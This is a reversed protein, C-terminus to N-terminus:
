ERGTHLMAGFEGGPKLGEIIRVTATWAVGWRTPETVVEYVADRVQFRDGAHIERRTVREAGSAALRGTM